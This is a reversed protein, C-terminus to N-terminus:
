TVGPFPLNALLVRAARPFDFQPAGSAVPGQQWALFFPATAGVHCGTRSSPGPRGLAGVIRGMTKAGALFGKPPM